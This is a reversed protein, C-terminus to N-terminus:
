VRVGRTPRSTMASGVAAASASCAAVAGAANRSAVTFENVIIQNMKPNKKLLLLRADKLLLISDQSDCFAFRISDFIFRFKHLFYEAATLKCLGGMIAYSTRGDSERWGCTILITEM